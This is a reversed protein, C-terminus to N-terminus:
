ERLVHLDFRRIVISDLGGQARKLLLTRPWSLLTAAALRKLKDKPARPADLLLTQFNKPFSGASTSSPVMLLPVARVRGNAKTGGISVRDAESGV